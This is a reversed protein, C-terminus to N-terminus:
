PCPRGIRRRLLEDGVKVGRTLIANRDGTFHLLALRFNGGQVTFEGQEAMVSGRALAPEVLALDLLRLQETSQLLQRPMWGLWRLSEGSGRDVLHAAADQERRRKGRQLGLRLREGALDRRNGRQAGPDRRSLGLKGRRAIGVGAVPLPKGLERHM